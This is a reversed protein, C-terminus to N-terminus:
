DINCFHILWTASTTPITPNVNWSETQANYNWLSFTCNDKKIDFVGASYMDLAQSIGLLHWKNGELNKWNSKMTTLNVEDVSNSDVTINQTTPKIWLGVTSNIEDNQTTELKVYSNSAGDYRYAEGNGLATAIAGATTANSDPVSAMNWKNPVLGWTFKANAVRNSVSSNAEVLANNALDEVGSGAIISLNIDYTYYIKPTTAVTLNIDKTGSFTPNSLTLAGVDTMASFKSIDLTKSTNLDENFTITIVDGTRNIVSSSIEPAKIDSLVIELPTKTNNKDAGYIQGKDNKGFGFLKNDKSLIFSHSASNATFVSTINNDRAVEIQKPSYQNNIDGHGLQGDEGYGFSYVKGDRDLLISHSNGTAIATINNEGAVEIQAPVLQSSPHFYGLRGSDGFGFSYVKSDKGLLMSHSDGTAIATINNEGAVAIQMPSPNQLNGVDFEGDGLQGSYGNGFSYVKGDRGLLITHKGGASIATINNEWAVEIQKPLNQNSTDGHGLQGYGGSGFSYVKGDRGLLLSYEYGASIATINNEKAVEIKTISTRNNDDGHGLRGELGQGYSYVGGNKDLLLLHAYGASIQTINGEGVDTILTLETDANGYKITSTYSDDDLVGLMYLKGKETLIFTATTATAVQPKIGFLQYERISQGDEATIVIKDGNALNGSQKAQNTNDKVAMTAGTPLSINTDLDEVQITTIDGENVAVFQGNNSVTWKSGFQHTIHTDTSIPPTGDMFWVSNGGFTLTPYAGDIGSIDWASFTSLTQMETTTKDYTVFDDFETSNLTKDYLLNTQHEAWDSVDIPVKGSNKMISYGVDVRAPTMNGGITDSHAYGIITAVQTLGSVSGKTYVNKTNGVTQSGILGGIQNGTATVNVDAFVSSINSDNSSGVLGGVYSGGSVNGEVFVNFINSIASDGALIGSYNETSKVSSNIIGLNSITARYVNFFLGNNQNASDIKLNKITHGLGNFKGRFSNMMDGIPTFNAINSLDIDTTLVYKGDLPYSGNSFNNALGNPYAIKTYEDGNIKIAFLSNGDTINVSGLFKTNAKDMGFNISTTQANTYSSDGSVDGHELNLESVNFTGGGTINIDANINLNGGASLFLTRNTSWVIPSNITLNGEGKSAIIVAEGAQALITNIETASISCDATVDLLKGDQVNPDDIISCGATTTDGVTVNFTSSPPASYLSSEVLLSAVVLSIKTRM